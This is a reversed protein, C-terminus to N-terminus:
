EEREFGEMPNRDGWFAKNWADDSGRKTGEFERIDAEKKLSAAEAKKMLSERTELLTLEEGPLFNGKTIMYATNEIRNLLMEEESTAPLSRVLITFEELDIEGERVWDFLLKCSREFSYSEQRLINLRDEFDM